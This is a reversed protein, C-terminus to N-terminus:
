MQIEANLIMDEFNEENTVIKEEAEEVCGEQNESEKTLKEFDEEDIGSNIKELLEADKISYRSANGFLIKYPVLKTAESNTINLSWANLSRKLTDNGKEVSGQSQPYRPRGNILKM